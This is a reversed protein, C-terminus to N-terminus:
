FEDGEDNPLEPEARLGVLKKMEKDEKSMEIEFTCLSGILEELRMNKLDKAEKAERVTTAENM